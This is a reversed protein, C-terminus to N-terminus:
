TKMCRDFPALGEEDVREQDKLYPRNWWNVIEPVDWINM